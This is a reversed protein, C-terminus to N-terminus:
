HKVLRSGSREEMQRKVNELQLSVCVNTFYIYNYCIFFIFLLYFFYLYFFYLIILDCIRNFNYYFIYIIYVINIIKLNQLQIRTFIFNKM